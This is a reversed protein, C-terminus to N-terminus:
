DFSGGNKLVGFAAVASLPFQGNGIAKLRDGRFPMGEVVRPVDDPEVSLWDGCRQWREFDEKSLPELSTWGVPWYMLWEVWDPNLQGQSESYIRHDLRDNVRSRGDSRVLSNGSSGKADSATPTPFMRVQAALGPSKVPDFNGRKLADNAIPTPWNNNNGVQDRLNAPKSRGPRAVTAERELAAASKPPLKDMTTPTAWNLYRSGVTEGRKRMTTNSGMNSAVPTPLLGSENASISLAVTPQQYVAGNHLFGWKPLTVCSEISGELLSCQATKLSHTAPSYKALSARWTSGNGVERGGRLARVKEPVVLTKVPFAALFSMLVAEGDAETLRKWTVGFRSLRSCDMMKDNRWFGQPTPMVSWRACPEGDSCIAPLFEEVLAQSFLWSM